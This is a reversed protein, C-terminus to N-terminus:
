KQRNAKAVCVVGRSVFEMVLLFHRGLSWLVLRTAIGIPWFLYLWSENTEREGGRMSSVIYSISQLLSASNGPLCHLPSEAPHHGGAGGVSDGVHHNGWAVSQRCVVPALHGFEPSCSEFIARQFYCYNAFIPGIIQIKNMVWHNAYM